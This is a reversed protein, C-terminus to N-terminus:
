LLSSMYVMVIYTNAEVAGKFSFYPALAGTSAALTPFPAFTSFLAVTFFALM